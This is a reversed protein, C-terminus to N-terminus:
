PKPDYFRLAEIDSGFERLPYVGRGARAGPDRVLYDYGQKGCIVVFHTTGGDPYRLRVIVPNGELLNDDILRFSADNEYAFSVKEPAMEAAVEWRIWGEPTYGNRATLFDNLRQPDTDIGYSALVMAASSVACGASALTDASPGLRDDAWRADSQRFTPVEIALRRSLFRGGSPPLKKQLQAWVKKQRYDRVMWAIGAATAAVLLLSGAMMVARRRLFPVAEASVSPSAASSPESESM